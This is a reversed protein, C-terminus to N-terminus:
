LEGCVVRFGVFDNDYDGHDNLRSACRCNDPSNLWSGGRVLWYQSNNENIWASGDLPAGEYNQHWTDACWEWVNGHMDYLGFVNAVKFSGVETTKERYIGESGAVYIAQGNYNALDSTITEGFHFPTATGARCAYEWEAESPLRYPKGTKRTLRDCFEVADYWSVREVPLNKGKFRSPDPNLERKVQELAAVAQWQAQTVQYKGMFFPKITVEHQPSEDQYRQPEDEPSGMIFSGGPIAVMELQVGNGLDEVFYEAQHRSRNIQPRTIINKLTTKNVKEGLATSLVKWLKGAVDKLERTSYSSSAAIQEYTQNSITEQVILREVENLHHKTQSFVLNDAFEVPNLRTITAVDFEFPQLNFDIDDEITVTVVEFTFKLDAVIQTDSSTGETPSVKELKEAFDAYNGGFQKLIKLSIRAYAKALNEKEGNEGVSPDNLLAVCEKLSKGISKEIYISITDFIFESDGFPADELLIKRIDDHMVDFIVEDPNTDTTIEALPKLLGGLFVEAVHVPLSEPLLTNQVLRVVPLTIVPAAMLLGALKRGFPSSIKRFRNVRQEASLQSVQSQPLQSAPTFESKSPLVFGPTVKDRIGAVLSSWLSASELNLIVVPTKIGQELDIDKWLLLERISLNRNPSGLTSNVLEVYAGIRLGTRLWMWDPLMQIIAMPQHKTWDQLTSLIAGDFWFQAVCDSVILILRRQTPDILEQPNKFHERKGIKTSIKIKGEDDKTLGWIQVQRFFGYSEFLQQLEQVTKRWIVMSSNEDVVLALDFRPELQSKLVPICIGQEATQKVTAIEDLETRKGSDVKLMLARFAKAFELQKPLSPPDTHRFPLTKESSSAPSKDEDTPKPPHITASPEKTPEKKHPTSDSPPPIIRKKNTTTNDQKEPKPQSIDDKDLFPKQKLALWLFDAIDEGTLNYKDSLVSILQKLKDNPLKHNTM